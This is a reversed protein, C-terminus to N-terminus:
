HRSRKTDQHRKLLATQREKIVESRDRLLHKNRIYHIEVQPLNEIVQNVKSQLEDDSILITFPRYVEQQEVARRVESLQKLLSNHDVKELFPSHISVQLTTCGKKLITSAGRFNGRRWHYMGTALQIWGTLPHQKDRPAVEKWYDELIEHCEFFDHNGNFYSLFQIFAPHYM